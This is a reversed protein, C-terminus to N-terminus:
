LHPLMRRLGSIDSKSVLFMGRAQRKMRNSRKSLMHRVGSHGVRFKGAANVRFRKKASSKSKLKPM